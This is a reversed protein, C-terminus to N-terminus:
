AGSLRRARQQPATSFGAADAADRQMAEGRRWAADCCAERHLRCISFVAKSLAHFRNCQARM